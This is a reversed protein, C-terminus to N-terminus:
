QLLKPVPLVGNQMQATRTMVTLLVNYYANPYKKDGCASLDVM